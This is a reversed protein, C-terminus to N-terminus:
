RSQGKSATSYTARGIALLRGAEDAVDIDIEDKTLPQGSM